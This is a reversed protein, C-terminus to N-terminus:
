NAGQKMVLETLARLEKIMWDSPIDTIRPLEDARMTVIKAIQTLLVKTPEPRTDFHPDEDRVLAILEEKTLDM